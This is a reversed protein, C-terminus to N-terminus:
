RWGIALPLLWYIAILMGAIIAEYSWNAQEGRMLPSMGQLEAASFVSLGTLGVVWHFLQQVPLPNLFASYAFLGALSIVTLPISKYLGDRGPLWPHIIAYFYSLGVMSATIPWFL